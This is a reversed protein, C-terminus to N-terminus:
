GSKSYNGKYGNNLDDHLARVWQTVNILSCRHTAKEVLMM